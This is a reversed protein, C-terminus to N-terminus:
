SHYFRNFLVVTPFTKVHSEFRGDGHSDLELQSTDVSLRLTSGRAGRLILYGALVQDHAVLRTSVDVFGGLDTSWNRGEFRISTPDLIPMLGGGLHKWTWGCSMALDTRQMKGSMADRVDCNFTQTIGGGRQEGYGDDHVQYTITGTLGVGSPLGGPEAEQQLSFSDIAL